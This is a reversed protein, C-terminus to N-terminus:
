KNRPVPYAPVKVLNKSRAQYAPVLTSAYYFSYTLPQLVVSIVSQQNFRKLAEESTEGRFAQRKAHDVHRLFTVASPM